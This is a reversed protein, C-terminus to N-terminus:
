DHSPSRRLSKKESQRRKGEKVRRQSSRSPKTERRMKPVAAADALCARLKEFCDERNRGQDRFRDSSIVIEGEVTLKSALRSLLRARLSETLSPSRLINWHLIVKSNVKNVNQGGPGSSRAYSLEIESFPVKFGSIVIPM